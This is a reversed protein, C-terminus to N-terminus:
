SRPVLALRRLLETRYAAINKSNDWEMGDACAHGFKAVLADDPLARITEPRMYSLDANM